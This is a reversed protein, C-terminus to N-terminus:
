PQPAEDTPSSSTTQKQLNITVYRNPNNTEKIYLAESLKELDEDTVTNGKSYIPNASYVKGHSDLVAGAAKTTAGTVTVSATTAARPSETRGFQSPQSPQLPRTQTTRHENEGARLICMFHM